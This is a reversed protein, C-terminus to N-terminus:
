SMTLDYTDKISDIRGRSDYFYSLDVPNGIENEGTM